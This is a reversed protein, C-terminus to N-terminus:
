LCELMHFLFFVEVPFANGRLPDLLGLMCFDEGLPTGGFLILGGATVM